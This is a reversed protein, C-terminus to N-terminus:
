RHLLHLKVRTGRPVADDLTVPLEDHPPRDAAVEMAPPPPLTLNCFGDFPGDRLIEIISAGACGMGISRHRSRIEDEAFLFSRPLANLAILTL